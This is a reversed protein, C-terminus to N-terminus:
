FAVLGNATTPVGSVTGRDLLAGREGVAFISLTGNRTNLSYLFPRGTRTIALDIPGSGAGTSGTVGNADLITLRGQADVRYGTITGSGTNSTYAYRGDRSVVIWCAATETTGVSASITTAGGRGVQYSSVASGDPAGGFAESVILLGAQRFSFGFPTAGVSPVVVPNGLLREARPFVLLTNTAKETVVLVRGSPDFSAQAANPVAVSLSRTSGPIPSLRGSNPEITFGTLNATGGDNLVYLLRGHMALSIPEVGGSGVTEVLQLDTGRRAFVSISHSGANVLYLFRGDETAVIGEQNGLGGGTGLGGTAFRVPTGLAGSPARPYVIAENGAVANSMTVVAGPAAAAGIERSPALDPTLGSDTPADCASVVMIGAALWQNTKRM